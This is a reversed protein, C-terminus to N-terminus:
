KNQKFFEIWKPKKINDKVLVVIVALAFGFVGSILGLPITGLGGDVVIVSGTDYIVNTQNEYFSVQFDNFEDTYETLKNEMLEIKQLFEPTDYSDGSQIAIFDVMDQYDTREKLLDVNAIRLKVIESLLSEAQQLNSPAVLNNFMAELETIKLTNVAILEDIARIRLQVLTNFREFNKVYKEQKILLRLENFSNMKIFESQFNIWEDAISYNGISVQGNIEIFYDFSENILRHQEEYYDIADLYELDDTVLNVNNVIHIADYANMAYMLPGSLLDVIFDKALKEDYDFYKMPINLSYRNKSFIIQQQTSLIDEQKRISTFEDIYMEVIDIDKYKENSEAVENLVDYSILSRYDWSTGDPYKEQEIGLFNYEFGVQALRSPKNVFYMPIFVVITTIVTILVVMVRHDWIKQVIDIISIGKEENIKNM